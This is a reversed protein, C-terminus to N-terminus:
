AGGCRRCAVRHRSGDPRDGADWLVKLFERGQRLVWPYPVALVLLAVAPFVWDSITALLRFSSVVQYSVTTVLSISLSTGLVLWLEFRYVVLAERWNTHM